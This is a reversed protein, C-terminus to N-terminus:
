GGSRFAGHGGFLMLVEGHIESGQLGPRGLERRLVTLVGNEPRGEGRMGLRDLFVGAAGAVVGVLVGPDLDFLNQDPQALDVRRM